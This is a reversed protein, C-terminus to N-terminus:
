TQGNVTRWLIATCGSLVIVMGISFLVVGILIPPLVVEPSMRGFLVAPDFLVSLPQWSIGLIIGGGIVVFYLKLYESSLARRLSDTASYPAM